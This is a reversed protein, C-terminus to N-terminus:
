EIYVKYKDPLKQNLALFTKEFNVQREQNKNKLFRLVQALYDFMEWVVDTREDLILWRQHVDTYIVHCDTRFSVKVLQTLQDAIEKREEPTYGEDMAM